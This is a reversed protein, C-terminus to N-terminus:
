VHRRFFRFLFMERASGAWSFVKIKYFSIGLIRKRVVEMRSMGNVFVGTGNRLFYEFLGNTNAGSIPPPLVASETTLMREGNEGRPTGACMMEEVAVIMEEKSVSLICKRGHRCDWPNSRNEVCLECPDRPLVNKNCSYAAFNKPEAGAYAIVAPCNVARAMHMLGGIQGVFLDSNHLVAACERLSLKGRLDLVNRLPVDKPAGIQVFSFKGCLADVLEQWQGWQKYIDNATSMIAIQTKEFFRGYKKEEETLFIEPKFEIIGSAGAKKAVAAILHTKPFRFSLGGDETFFFDWYTSYVVAIGHKKFFAERQPSWTGDHLGSIIEVYPNNRFLEENKHSIFIKKGGNQRFLAKAVPTFAIGDGIGYVPVYLTTAGARRLTEVASFDASLIETKM